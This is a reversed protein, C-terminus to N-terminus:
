TGGNRLMQLISALWPRWDSSRELHYNASLQTQVLQRLEDDHRPQDLL